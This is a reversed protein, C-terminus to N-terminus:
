GLSPATLRHRASRYAQDIVQMVALGDQAGILPQQGTAICNLFHAAQQQFRDPEDFPLETWEKDDALCYRLGGPQGYDILAQGESGDIRIEWAPIPTVWSATLAGIAGSASTVLVSASDEAQLGPLTTSISADVAVIEGALARFIYVSHVLTDILVGGGAVEPDTHWSSGIRGFRFGFRNYIQVVKGLKGSAILAQAQKVPQHFCHCFAFQLLGRSTAMVDVLTQTEALTRAPPKECLVHINRQAAAQAVALHLNPPTCISIADPQVTALMESFDQFAQGGFKAVREEAAPLHADAIGVLECRDALAAYAQLHTGGISGAGVVAVRIKSM